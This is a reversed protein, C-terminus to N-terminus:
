LCYTDPTKIIITPLINILLMYQCEKSFWPDEMQITDLSFNFRLQKFDLWSLLYNFWTMSIMETKCHNLLFHHWESNIWFGAVPNDKDNAKRPKSILRFKSENEPLCFYLFLKNVHKVCVESMDVVCKNEVTLKKSFTVHNQSWLVWFTHINFCLFNHWRQVYYNVKLRIQRWLGLKFSFFTTPQDLICSM